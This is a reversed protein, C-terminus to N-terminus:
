VMEMFALFIPDYRSGAAKQRANGANVFMLQGNEYVGGGTCGGFGKDTFTKCEPM